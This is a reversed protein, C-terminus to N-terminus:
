GLSENWRQRKSFWIQLIQSLCILGIVLYTAVNLMSGLYPLDSAGPDRDLGVHGRPTSTLTQNLGISINLSNVDEAKSLLETFNTILSTNVFDSMASTMVGITINKSLPSTRSIGYSSPSGRIDLGPGGTQILLKLGRTLLVVGSLVDLGTNFAWYSAAAYRGIPKPQPKADNVLAQRDRFFAADIYRKQNQKASESIPGRAIRSLLYAIWAGYFLTDIPLPSLQRLLLGLSSRLDSLMMFHEPDVNFPIPKEGITIWGTGNVAFQPSFQYHLSTQLIGSLKVASLLFAALKATDEFRESFKDALMWSLAGLEPYRRFCGTPPPRQPPVQNPSVPPSLKEDRPSALSRPTDLFNRPSVVVGPPLLDPQLLPSIPSQPSRPNIVIFHDGYHPIDLRPLLPAPKEDASGHAKSNSMGLVPRSM